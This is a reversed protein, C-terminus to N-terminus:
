LKSLEKIIEDISIRQKPDKKMCKKMINILGIKIKNNEIEVHNDKFTPLEENELKLKLDEITQIDDNYWPVQNTITQFIVGGFCYIDSSFEAKGNLMELPMFGPTGKVTSTNKSIKNEINKSVGFDTLFGDMSKLDILINAGKLDRHMIKNEHCYKLAKSVQLLIKIKDKDELEDLNKEFTGDEVLKMLIYFKSKKWSWGIMQIINSHNLISGLELERLIEKWSNLNVNKNLKMEKIAIDQNNYKGKFVTSYGGTGIIFKTLKFKDFKIYFKDFKNIEKILEKAQDDEIIKNKEILNSLKIHELKANKVEIKLKEIKEKSESLENKLNQNEINLENIQNDRKSIDLNLGNIQNDKKSIELNLKKIKEDKEKLDLENKIKLEKENEDYWKKIKGNKEDILKRLTEGKRGSKQYVDSLPLLYKFSELKDM